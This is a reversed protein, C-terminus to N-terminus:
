NVTTEEVCHIGLLKLEDLLPTYIAPIVPVHVGTEAIQGTLILKVAIAAPLSVTRAMASDGHPIGYDILTSSIRETRDPYRAYFVDYLVIMDREGPRYQMLQQMRAALVDMYSHAGAPLPDDTTLGLWELNRVTAADPELVLHKALDASLNPGPPAGILRATLQAFTLGALDYRENDDLLGLDAIKKLTQCWGPYRLTGRFMTQEPEIGYTQTYPMSDRNPYGEFTGLGDIEVPWYHDFLEAGPISIEQGDWLYHAPNKGAMVVGRPSWSFKYGLPNNNDAPAPLGGCYSVFTTIQGGNLKVQDIVRMASMHDIGPDLGIENLLIIGAARAQADLAQMEPKVYSTTVLHKHHALCMKAVHLHHVYPLLSVVLDAQQVLHSLAAEDKVNLALAKGRPHEGVLAQAKAVTRSAVTVEFDELDLLYRVMPGAVLGAGLILVRHM